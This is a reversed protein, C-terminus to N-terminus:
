PVQSTVQLYKFLDRREKESLPQILGDPMLSLTSAKRSEIDKKAITVKETATQVTVIRDNDVTVIGSVTRGDTTNFITMQFDKTVVASPDIINSLLYDMDHRGAGTLDPGIEAGNGFLKHCTACHKTFLARGSSASRFLM